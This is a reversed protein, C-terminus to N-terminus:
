GVDDNGNQARCGDSHIPTHSKARGSLSPDVPQGTHHRHRGDEDADDHAQQRDVPM